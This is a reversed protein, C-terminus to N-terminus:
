VRLSRLDSSDYEANAKAWGEILEDPIDAAIGSGYTGGAAIGFDPYREDKWITRIM